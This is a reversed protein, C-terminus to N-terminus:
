HACEQDLPAIGIHLAPLHPAAVPVRWTASRSCTLIRMTTRRKALPLSEPVPTFLLHCTGAAASFSYMM